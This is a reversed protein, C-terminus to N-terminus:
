RRASQVLAARTQQTSFLGLADFYANPWRQLHNGKPIRSAKCVRKLLIARLRNRTYGDIEPFTSWHSHKFYEFWGKLSQNVDGIIREMSNGNTRRTKAHITQRIKRVSKKRPWRHNLTFHYGLFDFGSKPVRLDVVHTKEPHLTLGNDETWQKVLQLARAATAEDRCLIIFDDAYRVMEMGASAMLHDLPNLYINSLLPSIVGGQPTGQQPYDLQAGDMVGQKLFMTILEIVRGDAIREKVREMMLGHDITDFYAKLDADVVWTYGEHILHQVRRLADKCGRGPRFGYSHEAFEKEFIPEIVQHLATQVVRDRVTPIGLPRKGTSGPKDIWVRKVPRPVYEGSKLESALRAINESRSKGFRGVTQNDIGPSGGNSRVREFAMELHAPAYVKDILAFWKGGKVGRELANLM